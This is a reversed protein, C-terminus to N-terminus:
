HEKKGARERPQVSRVDKRKKGLAQTIRDLVMALVVISIGAVFGRGIEMQGLSLLVERGLGGAAIMAALVVMGLSLMITQNVGAM